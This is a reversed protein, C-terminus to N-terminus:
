GARRPEELEALKKALHEAAEVRIVVGHTPVIRSPINWRWLIQMLPAARREMEETPIQPM